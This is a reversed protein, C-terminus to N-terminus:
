KQLGRVHESILIFLETEQKDGTNHLSHNKHQRETHAATEKLATVWSDTVRPSAWFQSLQSKFSWVGLGVPKVSEFFETVRTKLVM